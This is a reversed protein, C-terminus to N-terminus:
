SYCASLTCMHPSPVWLWNCVPWSAFCCSHSNCILLFWAQCTALFEFQTWTWPDPAQPKVEQVHVAIWIAECNLLLVLLAPSSSLPSCECYVNPSSQLLILTEVWLKLPGWSACPFGLVPEWFICPNTFFGLPKRTQQPVASRRLVPGLFLANTSSWLASLDLTQGNQLKLIWARLLNHSQSVVSGQM